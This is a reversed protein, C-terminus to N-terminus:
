EPKCPEEEETVQDINWDGYGKSDFSGGDMQTAIEYAEDENEAEITVECYTTYSALVRYTKM